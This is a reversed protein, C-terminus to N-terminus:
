HRGSSRFMIIHHDSAEHVGGPCRCAVNVFEQFTIAPSTASKAKDLLIERKHPPVQAIFDPNQLTQLFDPWPIEGFGEPDFRDFLLRWKDHM